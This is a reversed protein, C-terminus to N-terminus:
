SQDRATELWRRAFGSVLSNPMGGPFRERYTTNTLFALEQQRIGYKWTAALIEHMNSGGGVWNFPHILLHVVRPGASGVVSAFGDVTHRMNSDSFYAADRIFPRSYVNALDAISPSDVHSEILNMTPNHWSFVPSLDPLARRATTFDQAIGAETNAEDNPPPAVHHLGIRQGLGVVESVLDYARSGLLNYSEGRLLVFFTGGVGLDANVKALEVAMELSYDVDHRLLLLSQDGDPPSEFDGFTRGSNIAITILRRYASLSYNDSTTEM